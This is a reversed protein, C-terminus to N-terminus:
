QGGQGVVDENGIGVVVDDFTYVVVEELVQELALVNIEVVDDEQDLVEEYVIVGITNVLEDGVVEEITEGQEQVERLHGDEEASQQTERRGKERVFM